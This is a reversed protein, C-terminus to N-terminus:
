IQWVRPLPQGRLAALARAVALKLPYAHAAYLRAVCKGDWASAAATVDDDGLARRLASLADEAGPAVLAITAFARAGVLGAPNAADSFESRTLRLPEILVPTGDRTVHRWDELWATALTEGMAARGLVVMESFLCRADGALAINTRRSLACGEFLITEQPLWDLRAGQGVTMEIDLQAAGTVSAYAREATQTTAVAQAGPALELEFRMRDGGTLGGATNLFVIEPVPQHVKPLFAKASGSQHLGKLRAGGPAASLVVSARGRTRQHGTTIDAADFM